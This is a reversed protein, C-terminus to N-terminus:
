EEKAARAPKAEGEAQGSPEKLLNTGMFYDLWVGILVALPLATLLAYVVGYREISVDGYVANLLALIGFVGAIGGALSIVVLIARKIGLDM